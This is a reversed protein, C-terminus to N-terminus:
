LLFLHINCPCTKTIPCVCVGSDLRLRCQAGLYGSLEHLVFLDADHYVRDEPKRRTGVCALFLYIAQFKQSQIQEVITNHLDTIEASSTHQQEASFTNRTVQGLSRVRSFDGNSKHECSSVCFTISM